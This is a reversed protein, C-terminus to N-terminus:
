CGMQGSSCRVGMLVHNITRTMVEHLTLNFSIFVFHRAGMLEVITVMAALMVEITLWLRM